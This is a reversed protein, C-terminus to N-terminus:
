SLGSSRLNTWLWTTADLPGPAKRLARKIADAPRSGPWDHGMGDVVAVMVKSGAACSWSTFRVPPRETSKPMPACHDAAVFPALSVALSPYDYHSVSRPGVGGSIPVNRDATGHIAVVTISPTPDCSSVLSGAVPGIGALDEPRACAWAYAMMAGNSMGVAYVRRPDVGDDAILEETLRHLFDVDDVNRAHPKGCCFGANWFRGIGNPYAVEFKDRDALSDWNLSAKTQQGSGYAGHLVVVLPSGKPLGAPRHVIATREGAPSDLTVTRNTPKASSPGSRVSPAACGALIVALVAVVGLWRVAAMRM